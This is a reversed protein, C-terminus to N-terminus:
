RLVGLLIFRTYGNMRNCTSFSIIREGQEPVVDSEFCSRAMAESLWQEFEEDSEFDLKWAEEDLSAVYGAFIEVVYNEEATMIFCRPHEDYWSQNKYNVITGFMSNNNMRHGYIITHRDSFDPSNRYDMFISGASNYKGDPLKNIYEDNDEGQVIPYDIPSNEMYIWGIIDENMISLLRFDVEPFDIGEHPDPTEEPQVEEQPSASEKDDPDPKPSLANESDEASVSVNQRLSDYANEGEGYDLLTDLVKYGAFIAVAAFLVFLLPLIIKNKM